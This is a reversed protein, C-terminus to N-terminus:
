LTTSFHPKSYQDPLRASRARRCRRRWRAAPLHTLSTGLM